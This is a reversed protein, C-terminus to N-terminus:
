SAASTQVCRKVESFAADLAKQAEEVKMQLRAFEPDDPEVAGSKSTFYEFVAERAIARVDMAHSHAMLADAYKQGDM